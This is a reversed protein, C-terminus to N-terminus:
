GMEKKEFSTIFVKIELIRDDSYGMVIQGPCTFVQGSQFAPSKQTTTNDSSYTRWEHRTHVRAVSQQGPIWSPETWEICLPCDTSRSSVSYGRRFSRSYRFYRTRKAGGPAEERKIEM